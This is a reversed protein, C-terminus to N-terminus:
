WPRARGYASITLGAAAGRRRLVVTRSTLRGIGLADYPLEVLPGPGAELGVGYRRRLDLPRLSDAAPTRTWLRATAPELVLSAGGAAVATIRARALASAVEDRAARVAVRDRWRAVPPMAVVLLVGLLALVMLTEVLTFGRAHRMARGHGRSHPMAM